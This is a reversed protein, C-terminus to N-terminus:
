FLFLHLRKVWFLEVWGGGLIKQAGEGAGVKDNVSFIEM